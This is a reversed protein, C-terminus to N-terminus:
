NPVTCIFNMTDQFYIKISNSYYTCSQVTGLNIYDNKVLVIIIRIDCYTLVNTMTFNHVRPYLQMQIKHM